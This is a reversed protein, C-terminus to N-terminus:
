IPSSLSSSSPLCSALPHGLCLTPCISFSSFLILSPLSFLCRLSGVLVRRVSRSYAWMEGDEFGLYEGKLLNHTSGGLEVNWLFAMVNSYEDTVHIMRAFDAASTPSALEFLAVAHPPIHYLSLLNLVVSPRGCYDELNGTVTLVGTVPDSSCIMEAIVKTRIDYCRLFAKTGKNQICLERCYYGLARCEKEGHAQLSNAVTRKLRTTNSPSIHVGDAGAARRLSKVSVTGRKQYPRYASLLASVAANRSVVSLPIKLRDSSPACSIHEGFVFDLWWKGKRRVGVFTITCSKCRCKLVVKRGSGPHERMSSEDTKLNLQRVFSTLMERSPFSVGCLADALWGPPPDPSSPAGASPYLLPPQSSLLTPYSPAGCSFSLPSSSPVVGGFSLLLGPVVYQPQSPSVQFQRSMSASQRVGKRHSTVDLEWEM